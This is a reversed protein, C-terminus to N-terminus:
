QLLSEILGLTEGEDWEAPGSLAYRVRGERDVLFSTPLAYVKWRRTAAGSTDLLVTFDVKMAELFEAVDERPEASDVALIAFPRGTMKVKLRQMSPMERRCPPCWAAWFNVLVVRGKYDEIAHKRGQMDPLMLPPPDQPDLKKFGSAMAQASLMVILGCIWSITRKM